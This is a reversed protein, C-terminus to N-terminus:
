FAPIIIEVRRNAQRGAPSDVGDVVEPAVPRSEGYGHTEIASTVGRQRLADAVSAARNESLVQNHEDTDVSDTHGEVVLNPAGLDVLATALADLAAAADPRINWQDIDFLVGSDLSIRTGCTTQPALADLPPFSGIPQVGPVPDVTIRTGNVAGTGDGYNWISLGPAEYSASGDGYNWITVGDKTFSGSGDGYNDLDGAPTYSHGSGDGYVWIDNRDDLYYGAGDGYNWITIGNGEYSATGDGYNTVTVGGATFTGSGDGYNVVEGDPGTYHTAGDGYAVLSGTGATYEGYEDCTAATVTVGPVDVLETRLEVAFSGMSDGLLSMDPLTMLPIPPVEGVAYGPVTPLGSTDASPSASPSPSPTPTPTPSPAPTSTETASPTPDVPAAQTTLSCAALPAVLALAAVSVLPATLRHQTM